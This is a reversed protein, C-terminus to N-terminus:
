SRRDSFPVVFLHLGWVLANSIQALCLIFLYFWRRRYVVHVTETSPILCDDETM